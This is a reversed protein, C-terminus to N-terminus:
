SDAAAQDFARNRWKQKDAVRRAAEDDDGEGLADAIERWTFRDDRARQIKLRLDNDFSHSDDVVSGAKWALAGLSDSPGDALLSRHRDLSDSRLEQLRASEDDAVERRKAAMSDLMPGWRRPTTGRNFM